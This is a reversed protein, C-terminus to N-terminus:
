RAAPRPILVGLVFWGNEAKLTMSGGYKEATARISKLGYGHRGKDKKTTRPLENDVTLGDVCRNEVRIRLFGKQQSVSLHILRQDPDPLCSVGEIANDLLNGFLASLDVASMFGLASGDAVSTLTIGHDLCWASKQTLIADLVKNGTQNQAEYTRIGQEIQDLSDLKQETGIEARLMAIQHKLDHYTRNVRDISDQSQQYNAYQMDLVNQLASVEHLAYSDCLQLHYAFLIAVGGLYVITRINFAEAEINTTFPSELSSYSLSSLIYIILAILVAGLCSPRSPALEQMERRHVRELLYMGLYVAGGLLLLFAAEAWLPRLWDLRQSYYSYLQWALSVTFGGLIFARACYYVHHSIDGKCLLLFPLLTLAAFGTMGLNFPAGDLPAILSMYPIMVALLVAGAIGCQWLPRRRPLLTLYVLCALWHFVATWLAPVNQLESSM